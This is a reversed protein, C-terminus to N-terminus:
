GGATPPFVDIVDGSSLPTESGKPLWRVNRGGIMFHVQRSLEGEADFIREAMAPWQRAIEHALDRVSTGDPLPLDVSKQGVAARLTAYFNIRM